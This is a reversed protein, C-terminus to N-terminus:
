PKCNAKKWKELVEIKKDYAKIEDEARNIKNQLYEWYAGEGKADKLSTCTKLHVEEHAKDAEFVIEPLCMYRKEKTVELDEKKPEPCDPHTEMPASPSPGDGTLKRKVYDNFANGDM